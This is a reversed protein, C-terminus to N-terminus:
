QPRSIGVNIIKDAKKKKYSLAPQFYVMQTSWLFLSREFGGEGGAKATSCGMQPGNLRSGPMLDFHPRGEETSVLAALKGELMEGDIFKGYLATREDPYVYAIKEGTMEGDENVEGVLSGGDQRSFGFDLFIVYLISGHSVCKLFNRKHVGKTFLM